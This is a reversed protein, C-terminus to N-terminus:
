LPPGKLEDRLWRLSDVSDLPRARHRLARAGEEGLLQEVESRLRRAYGRMAPADALGLVVVVCRVDAGQAAPPWAWANAGVAHRELLTLLAQEAVDPQDSRAHWVVLQSVEGHRQGLRIWSECEGLLERPVEPLEVGLNGIRDLIQLYDGYSEFLVGLKRLNDETLSLLPMQFVALLAYPEGTADRLVCAALLDSEKDDVQEAQRHVLRDWRLSEVFLPDHVSPNRTSGLRTVEELQWGGKWRVRYIGARMLACHSELFAMITNAGPLAHIPDDEHLTLLKMTARLDRLADRLTAPREVIEAELDDHSLKMLYLRRTLVQTNHELEQRMDAYAAARSRWMSAFEGILLTTLAGGLFYTRPWEAWDWNQTYGWVLAFALVGPLAWLSGYRLAVLWVGLWTWPFDAGTFLPDLPRARAGLALAIWPIALAELVHVTM